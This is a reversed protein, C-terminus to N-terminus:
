RTEDKKEKNFYKISFTNVLDSKQSRLNLKNNLSNEFNCLCVSKFFEHKGSSPFLM